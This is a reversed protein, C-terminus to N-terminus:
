NVGKRFKATAVLREFEKAKDSEEDADTEEGKGLLISHDNKLADLFLILMFPDNRRLVGAISRVAALSEHLIEQGTGHTENSITIGAEGGEKDIIEAKVEIKIM